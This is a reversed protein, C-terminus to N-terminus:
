GTVVWKIEHARLATPQSRNIEKMADDKLHNLSLTIVKLLPMSKGNLAYAVPTCGYHSDNLRMKFLEFLM